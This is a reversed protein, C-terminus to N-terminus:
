TRALGQVAELRDPPLLTATRTSLFRKARDRDGLALLATAQVVAMDTSEPLRAAFQLADDWQQLQASALALVHWIRALEESSVQPEARAQHCRRIAEDFRGAQFALHAEALLERVRPHKREVLENPDDSLQRLMQWNTFVQRALVFTFLLGYGGSGSVMGLLFWAILLVGVLVSLRLTWRDARVPSRMLARLVIHVLLGGDLPFMPLLNYIAWVLNLVSMHTLLQAGQGSQLQAAVLFAFFLTLSVAPGAAVILFAQWPGSRFLM